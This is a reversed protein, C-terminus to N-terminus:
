WTEHQLTRAQLAAASTDLRSDEAAYVADLRKTTSRGRHKALYDALASAYLQSRSVGLKDALTDASTFVDDPISVATKMGANYWLLVSIDFQRVLGHM